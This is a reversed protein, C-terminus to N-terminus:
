PIAEDEHHLEIPNVANPSRFFQRSQKDAFLAYATMPSAIWGFFPVCVFAALLCPISAWRASRIGDRLRFANWIWLAGAITVVAIWGFRWPGPLDERLIGLALGLVVFLGGLILLMAAAGKTSPPLDPRPKHANKLLWPVVVVHLAIAFALGYPDITMHM